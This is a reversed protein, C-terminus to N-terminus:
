SGAKEQYFRQECPGYLGSLGREVVANWDIPWEGRTECFKTM